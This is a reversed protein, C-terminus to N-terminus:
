KGFLVDFMYDPSVSATFRKKPGSLKKKGKGRPNWASRLLSLAAKRLVNLNEPAHGLSARCADERFVM